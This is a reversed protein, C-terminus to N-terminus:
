FLNTATLYWQGRCTVAEGAVSVPIIRGTEVLGALTKELNPYSGRTFHYNIHRSTGVGLARLAKQAAEEVVRQVPWPEHNVWQPLCQELLGWKKRLGKREAVTIKGRTWLFSLM